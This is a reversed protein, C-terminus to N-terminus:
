ARPTMFENYRASSPKLIRTTPYKWERKLNKPGLGRKLVTHNGNYTRLWLESFHPKNNGITKNEKCSGQFETHCFVPYWEWSKHCFSSTQLVKFGYKLVMNELISELGRGKAGTLLFVQIFWHWDLEKWSNKKIKAILLLWSYLLM